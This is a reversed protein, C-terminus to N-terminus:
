GMGDDEEHESKFENENEDEDFNLKIQIKRQWAAFAASAATLKGKAIAAPV